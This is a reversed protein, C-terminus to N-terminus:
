ANHGPAPGVDVLCASGEQRLAYDCGTFLRGVHLSTKLHLTAEPVLLSSPGTAICLLPAIMDALNADVSAGSGLASLLKRAVERGVEEARKGRAGIADAGLVRGGGTDAALISSGPSDAREEVVAKSAVRIGSSILLAEASELQREAVHRPLRACRSVLEVSAAGEARGLVVPCVSTAPGVKAAVIGGGRPYYGRKTAKATFDIGLLRYAKAAVSEMYDFTPSWPVDTGGKLELTLSARTLAAAPIVAQLLLTISAATKMDVTASAVRPEGPSFSVETSGVEGGRLEAGFIQALARLTAAHQQRLGPVERGARIRTVHMARGQIVSLM